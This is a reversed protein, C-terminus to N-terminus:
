TQPQSLCGSQSQQGGESAALCLAPNRGRFRTENPVGLRIMKEILPVYGTLAALYPLMEGYEELRRDPKEFTRNLKELDQSLSIAPEVGCPCFSKKM